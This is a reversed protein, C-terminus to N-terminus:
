CKVKILFIYQFLCIDISILKLDDFENSIQIYDSLEYIQDLISCGAYSPHQNEAQKESTEQHVYINFWNHGNYKRSYINLLEVNNAYRLYDMIIKKLQIDSLDFSEGIFGKISRM